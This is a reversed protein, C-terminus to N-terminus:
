HSATAPKLRYGDVLPLSSSPMPLLSMQEIKHWQTPHGDRADYLTRVLQVAISETESPM